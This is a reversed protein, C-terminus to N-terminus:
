LEVRDAGAQGPCNGRTEPEPHYVVPASRPASQASVLSRLQSGTGAIGALSYVYVASSVLLAVLFVTRRVRLTRGAM